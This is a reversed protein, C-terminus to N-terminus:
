YCAAVANCDAASALCSLTKASASVCAHSCEYGASEWVSASPNAPCVKEVQSCSTSCGEKSDVSASASASAPSTDGCGSLVLLLVCASTVFHHVALLKMAVVFQLRYVTCPAPM